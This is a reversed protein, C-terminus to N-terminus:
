PTCCLFGREGTLRLGVPAEALDARVKGTLLVLSFEIAVGSGRSCTGVNLFIALWLFFVAPWALSLFPLFHKRDWPPLFTQNCPLCAKRPWSLSFSLFENALCGVQPLLHRFQFHMSTTRHWKHTNNV